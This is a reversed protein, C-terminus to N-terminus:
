KSAITPISVTVTTGIDPRSEIHITSNMKALMKKVIALGLGAGQHKSTFFPKFLNEREEESIGCGNDKVQIEIQNNVKTILIRIQPDSRNILADASNAMLNLLVQHLARADTYGWKTDPSAIRKIEIGKNKFDEEILAIFNDLFYDLRTKKIQPSEYMNFNKLSKLLYEIRSTEILTRDVFEKITERNYDTLNKKLVTLAMKISNLPNALEHRIGLFIYGCNDMLNTAAAISEMRKRETVDEIIVITSSPEGILQQKRIMLHKGYLEFSNDENIELPRDTPSSLMTEIRLKINQSFLDPIYVGLLKEATSGLLVAAAANSYIIRQRYLELIGESMSELITKLHLNQSLLEKTIRRPFTNELRLIPKQKEPKRGSDSELILKHIYPIIEVFPGKSICADAGIKTLDFENEVIAASIIVIYCNILNPMNRLAKCLIDGSIKPMILDMFIIDPTVAGIIELAAFGDLATFVQHGEKELFNTMLRLTAPHDDVVLIKKQMIHIKRTQYEGIALSL